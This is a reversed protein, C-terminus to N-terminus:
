CRGFVAWTAGGDDSWWRIPTTGDAKRGTVFLAPWAAVVQAAACSRGGPLLVDRKSTPQRLELRAPAGRMPAVAGGPVLVVKGLPGPRTAAAVKAVSTTSAVTWTRGGDASRWLVHPLKPCGTGERAPFSAASVFLAPWGAFLETCTLSRRNLPSEPLTSVVNSTGRHVLVAAPSANADEATVLTAVGGDIHRMRALSGTSITAVPTSTFPSDSAALVCTNSGLESKGRCPPSVRAPWPTIRNLTKESQHWFLLGGRGEFVLARAGGGYDPKPVNPLEYWRKGNDRTWFTFGGTRGTEVVGAAASTRALSFVFNGGKLIDHWTRGGNETSCVITERCEVWGHRNDAWTAARIFSPKAAAPLAVCVAILAFAFVLRPV